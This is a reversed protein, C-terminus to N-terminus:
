QSAAAPRFPARLDDGDARAALLPVGAPRVRAAAPVRAIADLREVCQRLNDAEELLPAAPEVAEAPAVPEVMGGGRGARADRGFVLQEPLAVARADRELEHLVIAARVRRVRPRDGLGDGAGDAHRHRAGFLRFALIEIGIRRGAEDDEAGTVLRRLVGG